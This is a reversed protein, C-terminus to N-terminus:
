KRKIKAVPMPNAASFMAHHQRCFASIVRRRGCQALSGDRLRITHICRQLPPPNIYRRKPM